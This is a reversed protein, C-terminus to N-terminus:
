SCLFQRIECRHAVKRRQIFWDKRDNTDILPKAGPMQALLHGALGGRAITPKKHQGITILRQRPRPSGNGRLITIADAVDRRIGGEEATINEVTPQIQFMVDGDDIAWTLGETAVCRPWTVM